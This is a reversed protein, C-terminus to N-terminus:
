IWDPWMAKRECFTLYTRPTHTDMLTTKVRPLHVKKWMKAIRTNNNLKKWLIASFALFSFRQVEPVHARWQWNVWSDLGLPHPLLCIHCLDITVDQLYLHWVLTFSFNVSSSQSHGYRYCIAGGCPWLIWVSSCKALQPDVQVFVKASIRYWLLSLQEAVGGFHQWTSGAPWVTQRWNSQDVSGTLSFLGPVLYLSKINLDIWERLHM